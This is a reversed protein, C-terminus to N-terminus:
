AAGQHELYFGASQWRGFEIHTQIRHSLTEIRWEDKIRYGLAAVSELFAQRNRIQYPVLAVGFNELTVTTERDWLAVKNILLHRPVSPLKALLAPFPIDLYQLLGSALLIDAPPLANLDDVFELAGLGDVEARARGARVIEPLDYITWRVGEDLKLLRAFARYKTGMHGGADLVRPASPLLRNLWFVIPYDWLVVDCMQEFCVPAVERHNYGVLKGGPVSAIAAERDRFAGSFRPKTPRLYHLRGVVIKAFKKFSPPV